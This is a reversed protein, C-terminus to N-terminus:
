KVMITSPHEQPNYFELYMTKEKLVKTVDNWQRNNETTESSFDPM